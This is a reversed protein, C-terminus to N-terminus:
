QKFETATTLFPTAPLGEENFIIALPWNAYLYRVGGVPVPGNVVLQVSTVKLNVSVPSEWTLNNESTGIGVEFHACNSPPIGNPCNSDRLVLGTGISEQIFTIAVITSGSSNFYTWSEFTPGLYQVNNQQYTIALAAL